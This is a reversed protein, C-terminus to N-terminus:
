RRLRPLARVMLSSGASCVSRWISTAGGDRDARAAVVAAARPDRRGHGRRAGLGLVLAPLYFLPLVARGADRGCGRSRASPFCSRSTCSCRRCRSGRSRSGGLRLLLRAPRLPREAHVRARRLVRGDALFFAADGSREAAAAPGVRRRVIALIGVLALSYYLGSRVLPMPQLTVTLPLEASPAAPRRLDLTQATPRRTCLEGARRSRASRAATSACCCTAASRHGRPAGATGARGRAAVVNGGDQRWLVGDEPEGRWTKVLAMNIIALCVLVVAVAVPLGVRLLRASPASM